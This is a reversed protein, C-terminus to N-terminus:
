GTRKMTVATAAMTTGRREDGISWYGDHRGRAPDGEAPSGASPDTATVCGRVVTRFRRQITGHLLEDVSGVVDDGLCQAAEPGRVGAPDPDVVLQGGDVAGLRRQEPGDSQHGAAPRPVFRQVGPVHPVGSITIVAQDEVAYLHSLVSKETVINHMDYVGPQKDMLYSAARIAGTAFVQKSYARHNVEIIEDQGIFLM